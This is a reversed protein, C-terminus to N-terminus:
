AEASSRTNWVTRNVVAWYQGVAQVRDLFDRYDTPKTVYANARLEYSRRVDERAKSTSLVVVPLGELEPGERIRRLVEHGDMGPLNLDLLVLDPPPADEHGDEGSLYAWAESGTTAEHVQFEIDVEKLAEEVLRADAPNDEVLLIRTPRGEVM